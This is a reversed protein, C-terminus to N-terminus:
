VPYQTDSTCKRDMIGISHKGPLCVAYFISQKVLCGPCNLPRMIDQHSLTLPTTYLYPRVVRRRDDWYGYLDMMRCEAM